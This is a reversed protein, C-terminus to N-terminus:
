KRRWKMTIYVITYSITIVILIDKLIFITMVSFELWSLDSKGAMLLQYAKILDTMM